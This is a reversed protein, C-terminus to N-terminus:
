ILIFGINLFTKLSFANAYLCNPHNVVPLCAFLGAALHKGFCLFTGPHVWPLDSEEFVTTTAGLAPSPLHRPLTGSWDARRALQSHIQRRLCHNTKEVHQGVHLSPSAGVIWRSTSSITSVLFFLQSLSFIIDNLFIKVYQNSNRWFHISPSTYPESDSSFILAPTFM